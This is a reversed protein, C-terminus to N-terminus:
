GQLISHCFACSVYELNEATHHINFEGGTFQGFNVFRDENGTLSLIIHHQLDLLV